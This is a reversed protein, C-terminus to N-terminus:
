DAHYVTRYWQYSSYNGDLNFYAKGCRYGDHGPFTHWCLRYADDDGFTIDCFTINVPDNARAFGWGSNNGFYWVVGNAPWLTQPQDALQYTVDNRNGMAAVSYNSANMFRCAMLLKTKSCNSLILDLGAGYLVTSYFGNYCQTWGVLINPNLNLQPGLAWYLDLIFFIFVYLKISYIESFCCMSWDIRYKM